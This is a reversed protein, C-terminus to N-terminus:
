PIPGEDEPTLIGGVQRRTSNNSANCDDNYPSRDTANYPSYRIQVKYRTSRLATLTHVATYPFTAGPDIIAPIIIRTVVRPMKESDTIDLVEVWQLRPYGKYPHTTTVNRVVGSIEKRLERAGRLVFADVALDTCVGGSATRPAPPTIIVGSGSPTPTPTPSPPPTIIVGSSPTPTPSPPPTITVGSRGGVGLNLTFRATDGEAVSIYITVLLTQASPVTFPESGGRITEERGTSASVYADGTCCDPGSLAVSISAGGVPATLQLGMTGPGANVPLSYYYTGTAFRGTLPFGSIPTPHEPDRSQAPTTVVSLLFITLLFTICSFYKTFVSIRKM